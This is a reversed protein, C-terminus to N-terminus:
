WRIESSAGHSWSQRTPSLHPNGIENVRMTFEDQIIKGYRWYKEPAM